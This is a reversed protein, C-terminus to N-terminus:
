QLFRRRLEKIEWRDADAPDKGTELRVLATQGPFCSLQRCLDEARRQAAPENDALVARIPYRAARAVQARSFGIGCSCVAGPGIALVDIPGEVWIIAHRAHQEGFLVESRPVASQDRRASRYRDGFGVNGIARTTWSVVRANIPEHIPLFVRWRLHGVPGLGQVRWLEVMEDPDLRRSELYRRHAPMLDCLGDPLELKTALPRDPPAFRDLGDTLKIADSLRIDSKQAIVSALSHRGCSWCSVRGSAVHVGLYWPGHSCFPCEVGLWGDSIKPSEGFERFPINVERLLERVNM